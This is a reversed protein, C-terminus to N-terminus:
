GFPAPPVQSMAPVAPPARVPDPTPGSPVTTTIQFVYDTGKSLQSLSLGDFVALGNTATVTVPTFTAGAPGSLM